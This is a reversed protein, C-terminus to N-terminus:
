CIIPRIHLPEDPDISLRLFGGRRGHKTSTSLVAPPPPPALSHARSRAANPPPPSESNASQSSQFLGLAVFRALDRHSDLGRVVPQHSISIWIVAKPEEVDIGLCSSLNRPRNVIRAPALSSWGGVGRPSRCRVACRDAM